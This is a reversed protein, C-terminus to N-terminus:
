KDIKNDLVFWNKNNTPEPKTPVKNTADILQKIVTVRKMMKNVPEVQSLNVDLKKSAEKPISPKNIPEISIWNKDANLNTYIILSLLTILFRISFITNQM